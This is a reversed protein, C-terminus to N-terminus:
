GDGSPELPELQSQLMRIFTTGEPAPREHGDPHWGRSAYFRIARDNESWVELVATASDTALWEAEFAEYLRSGIGRGWAHPEVYLGVLEFADARASGSLSTTTMAAFGLLHGGQSATMVTYEPSILRDRWVPEYDWEQGPVAM